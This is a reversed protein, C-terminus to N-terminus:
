PAADVQRLILVAMATAYIRGGMPAWPDAADWSGRQCHLDGKQTALLKARIFPRWHQLRADGTEILARLAWYWFFFDTDRKIPPTDAFADLAARVEADPRGAKKLVLARIADIAPTSSQGNRMQFDIMELLKAPDAGRDLLWGAHCDDAAATDFDDPLPVGRALDALLRNFDAKPGTAPAELLAEALRAANVDSGALAMLTLGSLAQDVNVHLPAIPCKPQGLCRAGYGSGSWLGNMGQHRRLWDCGAHIAEQNRPHPNEPRADWWLVFGGILLLLLGGIVHSPRM